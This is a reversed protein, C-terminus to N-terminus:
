HYVGPMLRNIQLMVVRSEDQLTHLRALTEADPPTEAAGIADVEALIAEARTTAAELTAQYAIRGPSNGTPQSPASITEWLTTNRKLITQRLEGFRDHVERLIAQQAARRQEERLPEGAKEAEGHPPPTESQAQELADPAEASPPEPLTATAEDRTEESAAVGPHAEELDAPASLHSPNTPPPLALPKLGPIIEAMMRSFHTEWQSVFRHLAQLRAHCRTAEPSQPPLHLYQWTLHLSDRLSFNEPSKLRFDIHELVHQLAERLRKRTVPPLNGSIGLTEPHQLIQHCHHHFAEEWQRLVAACEAVRSGNQTSMDAIWPGFLMVDPVVILLALLTFLGHLLLGQVANSPHERPTVLQPFKFLTARWTLYHQIQQVAPLGPTVEIGLNIRHSSPPGGLRQELRQLLDFRAAAIERLEQLQRTQLTHSAQLLYLVHRTLRDVQPPDPGFLSALEWPAVRAPDALKQLNKMEQEIQHANQRLRQDHDHTLNALRERLPPSTALNSEALLQDVTYALPHNVLLSVDNVGKAFGGHIAFHRGWYRLAQLPDQTDGPKAARADREDPISDFRTLLQAAQQQLVAQMDHLSAPQLPHSANRAVTQSLEALITDIERQIAPQWLLRATLGTHIAEMAFLLAFTVLTIWLPNKRWALRFGSGVRGTTTVGHVLRKNYSLALTALSLGCLWAASLRWTEGLGGPLIWSLIHVATESQLLNSIWWATTLSIVLSFLLLLPPRLAFSWKEATEALCRGWPTADSTPQWIERHTRLLPKPKPLIGEPASAAM